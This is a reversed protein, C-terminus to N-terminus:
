RAYGPERKKLAKFILKEEEVSFNKGRLREITALVHKVKAATKEAQGWQKEHCDAHQNVWTDPNLLSADRGAVGNVIHDTQLYQPECPEGCRLCIPNEEKYIDSTANYEADRDMRARKVRNILQKPRTSPVPPKRM